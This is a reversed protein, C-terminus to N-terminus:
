ILFFHFVKLCHINMLYGWLFSSLVIGYVIFFIILM